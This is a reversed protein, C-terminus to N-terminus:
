PNIEVNMSTPGPRGSRKAQLRELRGVIRDFERSLHAECRLLCDSGEQHPVLAAIGKYALRSTYATSTSKELDKLARIEKDFEELVQNKLEDSANANESQAKTEALHKQVVVLTRFIGLPPQGNPDLGYLKELWWNTSEPFGSSENFLDRLMTLLEIARHFILPNSKYRLMGDSTDGSHSQNWLEREQDHLSDFARFKVDMIEATEALRVRRKKWIVYALDEVCAAETAGSPQWEEWLGGLLERYEAPSEGDVLLIRSFMGRKLANRSSRKKGAATRPGTAGRGITFSTHNGSDQNGNRKGKM